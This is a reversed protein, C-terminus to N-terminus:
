RVTSCNAVGSVGEGGGVVGTVVVVVVAVEEVIVVMSVQAVSGARSLFPPKSHPMGGQAGAAVGPVMKEGGRARRRGSVEVPRSCAETLWFMARTVPV